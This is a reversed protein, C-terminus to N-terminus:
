YRKRLSCPTLSTFLAATIHEHNLLEKGLDPTISCRKEEPPTIFMAIMGEKAEVASKRSIKKCLQFRSKRDTLTTM